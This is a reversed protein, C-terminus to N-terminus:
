LIFSFGLHHSYWWTVASDQYFNASCSSGQKLFTTGTQFNVCLLHQIIISSHSISSVFCWSDIMGPQVNIISPKLLTTPAPMPSCGGLMQSFCRLLSTISSRSWEKQCQKWIQLFSLNVTFPQEYDRIIRFARWWVMLCNGMPDKIIEYYDPVDRADVPEKFPWADPHDLMIQELFYINSHFCTLSATLFAIGLSSSEEM